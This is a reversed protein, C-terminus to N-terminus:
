AVWRTELEPQQAGSCAPDGDLHRYSFAPKELPATPDSHRFIRCVSGDAVSSWCRECIRLRPTNQQM